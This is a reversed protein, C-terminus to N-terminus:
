SFRFHKSHRTNKIAYVSWYKSFLEFSCSSWIMKVSHFITSLIYTYLGANNDQQGWIQFRRLRFPLLATCDCWRRAQAGNSTGEMTFTSDCCTAIKETQSQLLITHFYAQVLCIIKEWNAGHPTKPWTATVWFFVKGKNNLVHLEIM